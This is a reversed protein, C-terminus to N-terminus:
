PGQTHALPDRESVPRDLVEKFIFARRLDARSLKGFDLLAGQRKKGGSRNVALLREAEVSASAHRRKTSPEPAEADSVMRHVDEHPPTDGIGHTIPSRPAPRPPLQKAPRRQAAARQQQKQAKRQAKAQAIQRQREAMAERRQQERQAMQRRLAEARQQRVSERGAQPPPSAPAAGPRNGANAAPRSQGQQKVRAQAIREAMSLNAPNPSGANPPSAPPASGGRRQAAMAQLQQRRRAAIEDLSPRVASESTQGSDRNRRAAKKKNEKIVNKIISSFFLVGVIGYIVIKGLPLGTSNNQALLNLM